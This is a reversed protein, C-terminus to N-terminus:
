AIIHGHHAWIHTWSPGMIPGCHDPNISNISYISDIWGFLAIVDVWYIVCIIVKNVNENQYYYQIISNQFFICDVLSSSNSQPIPKNTQIWQIPQVLELFELLYVLGVVDVWGLDSNWHPYLRRIRCLSCWNRSSLSVRMFSSCTRSQGADANNDLLPLQM